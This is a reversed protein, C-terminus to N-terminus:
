IQVLSKEATEKYLLSASLLDTYITTPNGDIRDEKVDTYYTCQIPTTIETSAVFLVTKKEMLVLANILVLALPM